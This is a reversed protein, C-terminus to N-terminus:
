VGGGGSGGIALLADMQASVLMARVAPIISDDGVADYRMRVVCGDVVTDSTDMSIRINREYERHRKIKEIVSEM